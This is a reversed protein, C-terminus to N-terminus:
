ILVPPLCPGIASMHYAASSCDTTILQKRIARDTRRVSEDTSDLEGSSQLSKPPHLHFRVTLSQARQGRLHGTDV